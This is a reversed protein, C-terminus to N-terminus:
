ARVSRYFAAVALAGYVALIALSWALPELSVHGSFGADMALRLPYHGPAVRAVAPTETAMPNQFLFLDIMSGFLVLYVGPLRDLLTGVLVGITGYILATLLVAVAFWGLRDPAFAVRLVSVAVLTAIASVGALLALRALVVELPRYGATVLRADADATSQILFLGAIGALLAAVMPTTFAPFVETLTVRVTEGGELEFAVRSDPAVITFVGVLYAPLAVLLGILVPTRKIQRAGMAASRLTRSM